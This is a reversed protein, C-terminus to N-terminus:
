IDGSLLIRAHINGDFEVDQTADQFNKCMAFLHHGDDSEVVNKFFAAECACAAIFFAICAINYEFEDFM